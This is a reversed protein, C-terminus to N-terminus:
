DATRMLRGLLDAVAAEPHAAACVSSQVAVRHCGLRVLQEVNAPTIGGIAFAPLRIEAIVARVLEIGALTEFSKTPSLFTPGVGIYDAGDLVAQRAQEITHTSVGVLLSEGVIQRVEHVPLESQGVHVGDARAAVALDARDNMIFRTDHGATIDRIIRARGLLDRDSLQKDRLQLLHVGASVLREVLSAFSSPDPGGDVLVYLHASALRARSDLAIHVARQLTYVAYRSQEFDEALRPALSKAVEALTRLAEQTRCFNATLISSLHPRQSERVTRADTGVDRLRKGRVCAVRRPWKISPAPSTM